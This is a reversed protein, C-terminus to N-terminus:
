LALIIIIFCCYVQKGRAKVRALAAAVERMSALGSAELQDLRLVVRDIRKDGAAADLARLLDRLQVEGSTDGFAKSLARSAPDSSFQEVLAGEPAIVLTTRELLPKSRDGAGLVALLGILLGFFLLNFLLRRTFNMADWLGVFFRAIPGRRPTENM